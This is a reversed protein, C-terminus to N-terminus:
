QAAKLGQLLIKRKFTAKKIVYHKLTICCEKLILCMSWKKEYACCFYALCWKECKTLLVTLAENSRFTCSEYSIVSLARWKNSTWVSKHLQMNWWRSAHNVLIADADAWFPLISFLETNQQTSVISTWLRVQRKASSLLSHFKLAICFIFAMCLMSTM